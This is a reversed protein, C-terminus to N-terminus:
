VRSELVQVLLFCAPWGTPDPVPVTVRRDHGDVLEPQMERNIPLYRPQGNKTVRGPLAILRAKLDVWDKHIDTIEGKRAGTHYGILLAIRVHDPLALRLARYHDRAVTGQRANDVPLHPFHPVRRVLPPDHRFGLTMARQVWVLENNITAPAAKEKKRQEIYANIVATGIDLAKM